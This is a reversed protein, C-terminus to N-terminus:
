SHLESYIHYKGKPADRVEWVETGPGVINDESLEGPRDAHTKASYYFEKGAPDVVHLDVDQKTTNWM